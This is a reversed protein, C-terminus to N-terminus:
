PDEAPQLVPEFVLREHFEKKIPKHRSFGAEEM